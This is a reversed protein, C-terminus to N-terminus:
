ERELRTRLYDEAERPSVQLIQAVEACLIRQADKLFNEDCLHLRRGLEMQKQRQAYLARITGIMEPSAGRALLNRYSGKRLNEEPIWYDERVEESDLLAELESRSLLKRMKALAAQNHVPVYYRADTQSCPVLVFYEVIKQDVKRHEVEVIRCVGQVGYVVQDGCQFDM